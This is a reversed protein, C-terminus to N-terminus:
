AGQGAGEELGEESRADPHYVETKGSKKVAELATDNEIKAIQNAYRTAQEM